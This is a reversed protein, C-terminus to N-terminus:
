MWRRVLVYMLVGLVLILAAAVPLLSMGGTDPLLGVMVGYM